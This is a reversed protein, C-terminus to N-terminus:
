RAVTEPELGPSPERRSSGCTNARVEVEELAHSGLSQAREPRRAAGAAAISM